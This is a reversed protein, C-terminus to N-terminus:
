DEGPTSVLRSDCVVVPYDLEKHFGLKL